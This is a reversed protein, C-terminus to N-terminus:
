HDVIADAASKARTAGTTARSLSTAIEAKDADTDGPQNDKISQAIAQQAKADEAAVNAKKKLPARQDKKEDPIASAQDKLQEAQAADAEARVAAARANTTPSDPLEPKVQPANGGSLSNMIDSVQNTYTAEVESRPPLNLKDARLAEARSLLKDTMDKDAPIVHLVSTIRAAARYDYGFGISLGANVVIAGFGAGLSASFALNMTESLDASFDITTETFQYRSPALARLLFQLNERYEDARASDPNANWTSKLIELLRKIDDLYDVNLAKQANAISLGLRGVIEPLHYLQGTLRDAAPIPRTDAM